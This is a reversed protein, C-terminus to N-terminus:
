SKKKNEVLRGARIAKYFTDQKIGLEEAVDCRSLGENLMEQARSVVDGTLVSAERRKPEKFFGSVGEKRYKKVWRKVSVPSVGFARVIDAQKCGGNIYLQSTFMRFSELDNEGHCFIPFCGHFYYVQGDRKEFSLLDTISVFDSPFIPLLTQPM